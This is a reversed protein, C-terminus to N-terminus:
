AAVGLICLGCKGNSTNVAALPHGCPAKHEATDLSDASGKPPPPQASLASVASPHVYWTPSPRRGPGAIPETVVPALYGHEVLLGIPADLRDAKSFRGRYAATFLDRRSVVDKGNRKILELLYDADSATEDLKMQDFAAVAHARYYAGITIAAHLTAPELPTRVTRAPHAALHLLGAIRVVAGVFKSGWDAIGALDGFPGLQPELTEEVKIVTDAAAKTLLLRAPDTWGALETALDVITTRYDQEVQDPVSAAGARRRGVKSPPIAYLFRALLGRGRFTGNRGIASLVTPQLMLGLTLAPREIYEPPRGKRDVRLPDGSHGKLWVDLQPINGSYRGAITDFIGGEATIIAMRGGQEALMSAAAEGTIDDALIRPIPPVNVAQASQEAAIAEAELKARSAADTARGAASKALEAAKLAVTRLTDAELRELVGAEALKAETDVLPRTMAAQVASKREGPGAVTALYLCLPERWGPRVEVEARGGACAALVGLASMAAMGPDTQTAEAVASVMAAVSPPLAEVPFPPLPACRTLPIPAATFPGPLPQVATADIPM